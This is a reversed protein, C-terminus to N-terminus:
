EGCNKIQTLTSGAPPFRAGHLENSLPSRNQDLDRPRRAGTRISTM